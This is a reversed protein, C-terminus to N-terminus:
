KQNILRIRAKIEDNVEVQNQIKIKNDKVKYCKIKADIESPV